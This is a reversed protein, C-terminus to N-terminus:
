SSIKPANLFFLESSYSSIKIWYLIWCIISPIVTFFGLLPIINGVALICFALGITKGPEPEKQINRSRFENGLSTSLHSVIIFQWVLNFLPILMLWVMSPDVSRHELACRQLAKQLTLSFFIMPLIWFPFLGIVMLFTETTGLGFFCLISLTAM